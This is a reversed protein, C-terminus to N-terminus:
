SWRWLGSPWGEVRKCACKERRQKYRTISHRAVEVAYGPFAGNYLTKQALVVPLRWIM